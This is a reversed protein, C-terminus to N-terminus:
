AAIPHSEDEFRIADEIRGDNIHPHDVRASNEGHAVRLPHVWFLPGHRSRDIRIILEWHICALNDYHTGPWNPVPPSLTVEGGAVELTARGGWEM